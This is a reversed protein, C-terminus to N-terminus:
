LLLADTWSFVASIAERERTAAGTVPGIVTQSSELVGARRFMRESLLGQKSARVKPYPLLLGYLETDKQPLPVAM